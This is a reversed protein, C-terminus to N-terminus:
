LGYARGFWHLVKEVFRKSEGYPNIPAQFQDEVIPVKAPVGYTACSSSFVVHRVGADVLAELLNLTNVVNNRFYKRPQEMSEGVYASAAFHIAAGVKHTALVQRILGTDALNGEVIPGVKGGM